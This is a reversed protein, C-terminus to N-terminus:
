ANATASIISIIFICEKHKVHGVDTTSYRLGKCELMSLGEPSRKIIIFVLNVLKKIFNKEVELQSLTANHPIPIHSIIIIM